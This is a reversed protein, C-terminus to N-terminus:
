RSYLYLLVVSSYHRPFNLYPRPPPLILVLIAGQYILLSLQLYRFYRYHFSWLCVTFPTSHCELSQEPGLVWGSYNHWGRHGSCNDWSRNFTVRWQVNRSFAQFVDGSITTVLQRRCWFVNCFLSVYQMLIQYKM